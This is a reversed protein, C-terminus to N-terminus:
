ASTRTGCSGTRVQSARDLLYAGRREGGGNKVGFRFPFFRCRLRLPWDDQGIVQQRPDAAFRHRQTLNHRGSAYSGHADQAEQVEDVLELACRQLDERRVDM